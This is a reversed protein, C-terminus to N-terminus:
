TSKGFNKLLLIFRNFIVRILIKATALEIEPHTISFIGGFMTPKGYIVYEANVKLYKEFYAISQFWLLEMYGSNDRLTM